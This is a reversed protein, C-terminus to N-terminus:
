EHVAGWTRGLKIHNITSFSVGYRWALDSQKVGVELAVRIEEVDSYTLVKNGNLEGRKSASRGKKKRDQANDTPTGIFLHDPNVCLPTDCHHCVYLGNPVLGNLEQFLARHVITTNHRKAAVASRGYGGATQAGMWIACGSFPLRVSNAEVYQVFNLKM